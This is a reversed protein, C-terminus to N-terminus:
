PQIESIRIIQVTNQLKLTRHESNIRRLVLTISCTDTLAIELDCELGETDDTSHPVVNLMSSPSGVRTVKKM